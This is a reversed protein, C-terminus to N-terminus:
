SLPVLGVRGEGGSRCHRASKADVDQRARRSAWSATATRAAGGGCQTAPAAHLACSTAAAAAAMTVGPCAGSSSLAPGLILPVSPGHDVFLISSYVLIRSLLHLYTYHYCSTFVAHASTSHEQPM